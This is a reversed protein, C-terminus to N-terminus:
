SIAPTGSGNQLVVQNANLKQDLTKVQGSASAVEKKGKLFKVNATTGETDYKVQYEGAPIVTGNLSADHYLTIDESHTKALAALSITIALLLMAMRTLTRTM